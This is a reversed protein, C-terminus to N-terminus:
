YNQMMRWNFTKATFSSRFTAADVGGLVLEEQQSDAFESSTVLTRLVQPAVCLSFTLHFRDPLLLSFSPLPSPPFAM